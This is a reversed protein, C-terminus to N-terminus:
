LFEHLREIVQEVVSIAVACVTQEIMLYLDGEIEEIFDAPEFTGKVLFVSANTHEM